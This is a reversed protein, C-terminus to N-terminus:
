KLPLIGRETLEVEHRACIDAEKAGAFLMSLHRRHAELYSTTPLEYGVITEVEEALGTISLVSRVSVYSAIHSSVYELEGLAYVLQHPINAHQHTNVAPPFSRRAGVHRADLLAMANRGVAWVLSLCAVLKWDVRCAVCYACVARCVMARVSDDASKAPRHCVM